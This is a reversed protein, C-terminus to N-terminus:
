RDEGKEDEEILLTADWRGRHQQLKACRRGRQSDDLDKCRCSSGYLRWGELRPKDVRVKRM